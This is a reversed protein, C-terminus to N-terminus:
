IRGNARDSWIIPPRGWKRLRRFIANQWCASNLILTSRGRMCTQRKRRYKKTNSLNSSCMRKKCWEELLEKLITGSTIGVKKGNMSAYDGSVISANAALSYLYYYEYGMPEAPYLFEKAREETYSIEYILDVKGARLLRVSDSFSACPVYKVDWGAYTGITQIYEYAYGAVPTNNEDMILQRNFELSAIRVAKRGKKEAGSLTGPLLLLATCFIVVMRFLIKGSSGPCHRTLKMRGKGSLFAWIMKM